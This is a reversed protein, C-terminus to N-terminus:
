ARRLRAARHRRRALRAARGAPPRRDRELGGEARGAADALAALGVDIPRRRSEVLGDTYLWLTEGPALTSAGSRADAPAASASRRAARRTSTARAARPRRDAAAPPRRQGARVRRTREDLVVYVVRPSRSRAARLRRRARAPRRDGRGPGAGKLAYARLSNRIQGMTAAAEMGRGGVDGIVIGFRGDPLRFADYWDGGAHDRADSPVYRVVLEFGPLEPLTAPLLARQLTEAAAHERAFLRAHDLALGARRGLEEALELERTTYQRGSEAWVFTMAGLTRDRATLPVVMSRTCRCSACSGADAGRRARRGGAAGLRDGPVAGSRGTRIVDPAGTPADPDPPYREQLERAWRVKDPDVHAVALQEGRGRSSCRAGTPSGRSPSSPSRRSRAPGPGDVRGAGPERRGPVRAGGRPPPARHRRQAARHHARHPRGARPGRARPRAALARRPRAARRAPRVRVGHRRAVADEILRGLEERDDPHVIRELFDDVGAPQTGRPLGYLPGMNDSWEIADTAVDWEWFGTETGELALRLREELGRMAPLRTRCCSAARRHTGARPLPRRRRRRRVPQRRRAAAGRRRVRPGPAQRYPRDSTM